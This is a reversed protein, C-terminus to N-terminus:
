GGAVEIRIADGANVTGLLTADGEVKGIINANTVLRCENGESIPTPGFPIAVSDGQVWFCITGHPVVQCAGDEMKAEVPVEFYVEDGWTNALSVCPLAAAVQRATETDNLTGFVEGGDWAIRIRM